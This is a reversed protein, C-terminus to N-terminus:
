SKTNNKRIKKMEKNLIEHSQILNVKFQQLDSDNVLNINIFFPKDIINSGYNYMLEDYIKSNINITNQVTKNIEKLEESDGGRYPPTNSSVDITNWIALNLKKSKQKLAEKNITKTIKNIFLYSHNNNIASDIYELNSEIVTLRNKINRLIATESAM